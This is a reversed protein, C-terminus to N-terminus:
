CWARFNSLRDVPLRSPEALRFDFAEPHGVYTAVAEMSFRYAQPDSGALDPGTLGDLLGPLLQNATAGLAGATLFHRRGMAPLTFDLPIRQVSTVEGTGAWHAVALLVSM